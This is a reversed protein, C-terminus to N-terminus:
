DDKYDAMIDKISRDLELDNPDATPDIMYAAFLRDDEWRNRNDKMYKKYAKELRGHAVWANGVGSARIADFEGLMYSAANSQERAADPWSAVSRLYHKFDYDETNSPHIIPLKGDIYKDLWFELISSGGFVWMILQNIIKILGNALPLGITLGLMLWWFANASEFIYTDLLWSWFAAVAISGIIIKIAAFTM